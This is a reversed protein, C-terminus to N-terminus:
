LAEDDRRRSEHLFGRRRQDWLGLRPQCSDSLSAFMGQQVRHRSAVFSDFVRIWMRRAHWAWLRMTGDNLMAFRDFNPPPPFVWKRGSPGDAADVRMFQVNASRGTQLNVSRGVQYSIRSSALLCDKCRQMRIRLRPIDQSFLACWCAHTCRVTSYRRCHLCAVM